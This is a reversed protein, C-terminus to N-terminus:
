QSHRHIFRMAKRHMLTNSYLGLKVAFARLLRSSNTLLRQWNQNSEKLRLQTYINEAFEQVYQQTTLRDDTSPGTYCTQTESDKLSASEAVENGPENPVGEICTGMIPGSAYGSDTFTVRKDDQTTTALDKRISRSEEMKIELLPAELTMLESWHDKATGWSRREATAQNKIWDRDRLRWLRTSENSLSLNTTMPPGSALLRPHYEKPVKTLDPLIHRPLQQRIKGLTGLRYSRREVCSCCCIDILQQIRPLYSDFFTKSSLLKQFFSLNASTNRESYDKPTLLFALCTDPVSRQLTCIWCLYNWTGLSPTNVISWRSSSAIPWGISTKRWPRLWIVTNNIAPVTAHNAHIM